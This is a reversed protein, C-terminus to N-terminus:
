FFYELMSKQLGQGMTCQFTCQGVMNSSPTGPVSDEESFARNGLIVSAFFFM